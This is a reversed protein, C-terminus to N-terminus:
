QCKAGSVAFRGNKFQVCVAHSQRRHRGVKAQEHQYRHTQHRKRAQDAARSVRQRRINSIRTRKQSGGLSKRQGAHRRDSEHLASSVGDVM